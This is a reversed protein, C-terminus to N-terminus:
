NNKRIEDLIIKAVRQSAKGDELLDFTKKLTIIDRKMENEKFSDIASILEDTNFALPFPLDKKIDFNLSRENHIYNYYDPAYLFVKDKKLIYDFLSSSYDTILAFSTILLDQMDSYSAGNKVFKNETVNINNSINPHLRKLLVFKRNYKKEFAKIIRKEDFKYLNIQDGIDMNQRFTPAYLIIETDNSIQYFQKVKEKVKTSDEFFIDNRPFGTRAIKGSYWFNNRYNDEVWKSDSLMLDIQTSDFKSDNIYKKSLLKEAAREVKKFAIGGHWTQLYFQKKRKYGKHMNKINDIWIHATALEYMSKFSKVKVTRVRKPFSYKKETESLLWVVDIDSNEKLLQEVIYKPNDGFGSGLFNDVVIKNKQVPLICCMYNYIKLLKDKIGFRNNIYVVKEKFM